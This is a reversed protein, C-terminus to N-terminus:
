RQRFFRPWERSLSGVLGEFTHPDAVGALDFGANRAASAVAPGIAFIPVQTPWGGVRPGSGQVLAWGEALVRVQSAATLLLADVEGGLVARILREAVKRDPESHYISLVTVHAGLRKFASPLAERGELARPLLIPVGSLVRGEIAEILGEAVFRHPVLDVRLGAKQAAKATSDGVAWVEIGAFRDGLDATTEADIQPVDAAGLLVDTFVGSLNEVTRASTLVLVGRHTGARAQLLWTGVSARVGEAPAPVIRLLPFSVPEFGSARLLSGLVGVGDPRTVAIHPSSGGRPEPVSLAGDSGEIGIPSQKGEHRGRAPVGFM